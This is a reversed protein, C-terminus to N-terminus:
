EATENVHKYLISKALATKSLGSKAGEEELSAAITSDVRLYLTTTPKEDVHHETTKEPKM